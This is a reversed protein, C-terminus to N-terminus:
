FRQDADNAIDVSPDNGDRGRWDQIPPTTEPGPRSHQCGDLWRGSGVDSPVVSPMTLQFPTVVLTSDADLRASPVGCLVQDRRQRVPLTPRGDMVLSRSPPTWQC